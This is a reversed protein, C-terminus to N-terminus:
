QYDADTTEVTIIVSPRTHYIHGSRTTYLYLHRLSMQEGSMLMSLETGRIQGGLLETGDKADRVKLYQVIERATSSAPHKPIEDGNRLAHTQEIM